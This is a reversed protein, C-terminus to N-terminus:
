TPRNFSKLVELAGSSGAILIVPNTTMSRSEEVAPM